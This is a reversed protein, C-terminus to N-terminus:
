AVEIRAIYRPCLTLSTLVAKAGIARQEPKLTMEGALKVADGGVRAPEVRVLLGAGALTKRFRRLSVSWDGNNMNDAVLIGTDADFIRCVDGSYTIDLFIDDLGEFAAEPLTILAREDGLHRIDAAISRVTVPVNVRRFVGDARGHGQPPFLSVALRDAERSIVSLVKGHRTVMAESLAFLPASDTGLQALRGADRAPLVLLRIEGGHVASINVVADRGPKVQVVDVDPAHGALRGRPGPQLHRIADREFVLEAPLADIQALIHWQVGDAMFRCVPQATASRLTVGSGLDLNVPWVAMAGSPLALSGQHPIRVPGRDTALEIVLDNRPPLKKV